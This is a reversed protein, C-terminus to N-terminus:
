VRAVRARKGAAVFGLESGRCCRPALCAAPSRVPGTSVKALGASTAAGDREPVESLNFGFGLWGPVRLGRAEKRAYKDMLSRPAPLAAASCPSDPAIWRCWGGGATPELRWSAERKSHGAALLWAHSSLRPHSRPDAWRGLMVM